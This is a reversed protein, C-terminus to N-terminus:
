NKGKTNYLIDLEKKYVETEIEFLGLLTHFLNDQSFIKNSYSKLKGIDIEKKMDGEGFWMFSTIHKQENPAM